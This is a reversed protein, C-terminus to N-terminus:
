CVGGAHGRAGFSDPWISVYGRQTLQTTWRWPAGSSRPGLGSCDHLIVVAPFPGAGAPKTLTFQIPPTEGAVSQHQALPALLLVAGTLLIRGINMLAAWRKLWALSIARNFGYRMM